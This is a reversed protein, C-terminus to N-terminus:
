MSIPSGIDDLYSATTGEPYMGKSDSGLNLPKKMTSLKKPSGVSIDSNGILQLAASTVLPNVKRAQSINQDARKKGTIDPSNGRNQNQM